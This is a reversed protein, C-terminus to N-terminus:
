LDKEMYEQGDETFKGTRHYGNKEYFLIVGSDKASALYVDTAGMKKLMEDSRKILLSGLKKGRYAPSVYFERVFGAGDRECWDSKESDIQYIVFGVIKDGLKAVDICVIDQLYQEKIIYNKAIKEIRHRDSAFKMEDVFYEAFIKAFSEFDKEQLKEIKYEIM